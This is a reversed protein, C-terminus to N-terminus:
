KLIDVMGKPMQMDKFHKVIAEGSHALVVRKLIVQKKSAEEPDDPDDMPVDIKIAPGDNGLIYVLKDKYYPEIKIGGKRIVSRSLHVGECLRIVTGEQALELAEDLTSVDGFGEVDVV